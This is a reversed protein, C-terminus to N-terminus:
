WCFDLGFGAAVEGGIRVALVAVMWEGAGGFRSSRCVVGRAGEGDRLVNEAMIDVAVKGPGVDAPGPLVEFAGFLFEELEDVSVGASCTRYAGYQRDVKIAVAELVRGFCSAHGEFIECFRGAVISPGLLDRAEEIVGGGTFFVELFNEGGHSGARLGKWMELFELVADPITGWFVFLAITGPLGGPFGVLVTGDCFEPLARAFVASFGPM